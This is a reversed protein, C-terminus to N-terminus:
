WTGSDDPPYLEGPGPQRGTEPPVRGPVWRSTVAVSSHPRGRASSWTQHGPAVPCDPQVYGKLTKPTGCSGGVRGRTIAWGSPRSRFHPPSPHVRLADGRQGIQPKSSPKLTDWSGQRREAPEHDALGDTGRKDNEDIVWRAEPGDPGNFVPPLPQRSAVTCRQLRRGPHWARRGAVWCSRWRVWRRWGVVPPTVALCNSHGGEVKLAGAVGPSLGPEPCGPAAGHLRDILASPRPALTVAVGVPAVDHLAVYEVTSRNM